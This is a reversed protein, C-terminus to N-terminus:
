LPRLGPLCRSILKEPPAKVNLLLHVSWATFGLDPASKITGQKPSYWQIFLGYKDTMGKEEWAATYKELVETAVNTGDRIDNYRM